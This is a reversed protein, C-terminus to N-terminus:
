PLLRTTTNRLGAILRRFGEAYTVGSQLGRFKSIIDIFDIVDVNDHEKLWKLQSQHQSAMRKKTQITETIDVYETPSFNIGNLNDMYYIPVVREFYKHKTKPYPVTAIFSADFVLRSTVTHDLMYDDPSHTIIIDPKTQRILDVFKLTTERDRYVDLDDIDLALSEAGIIKAAKKSEERRIRALEDLPIQFHGKNGNCVHCMIVKHGRVTYKALTGGCQFELDDPHAGVALIRM